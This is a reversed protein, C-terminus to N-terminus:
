YKRIEIIVFADFLTIVLLMAVCTYLVDNWNMWCKFNCKNWYYLLLEQFITYYKRFFWYNWQMKDINYAAHALVITKM